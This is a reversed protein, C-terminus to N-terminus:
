IFFSLYSNDPDTYAYGTFLNIPIASDTFHLLVLIKAESFYETIQFGILEITKKRAITIIFNM